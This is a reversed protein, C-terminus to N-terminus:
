SRGAAGAPTPPVRRGYVGSVAGASAVQSGEVVALRPADVPAQGRVAVLREIEWRGHEGGAFSVSLPPAM